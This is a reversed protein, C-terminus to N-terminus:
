TRYSANIEIYKETLDCTWFRAEGKGKGQIAFLIECDPSNLKEKLGREDFDAALGDHCVEVGQFDITVKRPSFEVGSNGAASLIRGWNPDAGAIATKVLPSNAIARAM